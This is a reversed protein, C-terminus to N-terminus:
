PGDHRPYRLGMPTSLLLFDGDDYLSTYRYVNRIKNVEMQFTDADPCFYTGGLGNNRCKRDLLM